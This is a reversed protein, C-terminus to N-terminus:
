PQFVTIITQLLQKNLLLIHGQQGLLNCNSDLVGGSQWHKLLVQFLSMISPSCILCSIDVFQLHLSLLGSTAWHQNEQSHHLIELELCVGQLTKELNDACLEHFAELKSSKFDNKFVIKDLITKALGFKFCKQLCLRV